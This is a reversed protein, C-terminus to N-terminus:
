VLKCCFHHKHWLCKLGGLNKGYLPFFTLYPFLKSWIDKVWIDKAWIDNAVIHFLWFIAQMDLSPKSDRFHNKAEKKLILGSGSIFIHIHLVLFVIYAAFFRLQLIRHFKDPSILKRRRINFYRWGHVYDQMRVKVMIYFLTSTSHASMDYSLNRDCEKSLFICIKRFQSNWTLYM